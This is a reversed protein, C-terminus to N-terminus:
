RPIATVRPIDGPSIEPRDYGIAWQDQRDTILLQLLEPREFSQQRLQRSPQAVTHLSLEDGQHLHCSDHLDTQLNVSLLFM